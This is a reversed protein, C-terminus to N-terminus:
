GRPLRRLLGLPDRSPADSGRGERVEFHLHDGSCSGTCGLRGIRQGATVKEGPEVSAPAQLHLYVYTEGRERSFLTVYHGRGDGSGTELVVGARVALLPTGAAAFVDQGQHVHGRRFNGYRAAWEGYGVAGAVPHVAAPAPEDLSGAHDVPVAAADAVPVLGLALAGILPLRRM